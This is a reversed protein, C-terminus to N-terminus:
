VAYVVGENVSFIIVYAKLNELCKLREDQQVYDELQTIAAQKVKDFQNSQSARLYKLEFAFQFKPAFPPRRM